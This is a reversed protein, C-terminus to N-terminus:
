RSRGSVDPGETPDDGGSLTDWAAAPDTAPDAAVLRTASYKRTAQPWAGSLVVVTVGLLASLVGVVLAVWPWPTASVADVLDVLSAAGEVGTATTIPTGSAGIPDALSTGAALAVSVGLLTQLVGLVIRFVRGAISLAAFLALSALSLASLAGGAVDGGATVPATGGQPLRIVLEFWPQTWALLVVGALLIGLLITFLKLRRATM